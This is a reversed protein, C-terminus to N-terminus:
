CGGSRISLKYVDAYQKNRHLFTLSNDHGVEICGVQASAVTFCSDAWGGLQGLDMGDWGLAQMGKGADERDVESCFGSSLGSSM